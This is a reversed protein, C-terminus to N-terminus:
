KIWNDYNNITRLLMPQEKKKVQYTCVPVFAGEEPVDMDRLSQRWLASALEMLHGYGIQEGLVKVRDAQNKIELKRQAIDIM